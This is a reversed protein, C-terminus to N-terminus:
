AVRLSWRSRKWPPAITRCSGAAEAWSASPSPSLIDVSHLVSALQQAAEM